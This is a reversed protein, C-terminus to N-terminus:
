AVAAAAAEEVIRCAKQLREPPVDHHTVFRIWGDFPPYSWVGRRALEEVLDVFGEIRVQGGAVPKGFFYHAAM